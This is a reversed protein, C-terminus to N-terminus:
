SFVTTDNATSNRTAVMIQSFHIDVRGLVAFLMAGSFNPRRMPLGRVLMAPMWTKGFTRTFSSGRWKGCCESKVPVKRRRPCWATEAERCLTKGTEYDRSVPFRCSFRGKDHRTRVGAAGESRMTDNIDGKM